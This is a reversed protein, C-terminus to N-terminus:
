VGTFPVWRTRRGAQRGTSGPPRDDLRRWRRCGAPRNLAHIVKIGSRGVLLVSALFTPVFKAVDVWQANTIKGAWLLGTGATLIFFICGAIIWVETSKAGPKPSAAPATVETTLPVGM